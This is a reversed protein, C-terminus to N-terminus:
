DPKGPRTSGLCHGNSTDKRPQANRGKYKERLENDTTPQRINLVQDAPQPWHRIRGGDDVTYVANLRIAIQGHAFEQQYRNWFGRCCAKMDRHHHCARFKRFGMIPHRVAAELHKLDLTSDPRYICTACQTKRVILGPVRSAAPKRNRAPKPM